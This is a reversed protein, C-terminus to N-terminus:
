QFIVRREDQAACQDYHARRRLDTDLRSSRVSGPPPWVPVQDDAGEEAEAEPNRENSDEGAQRAAVSFRPRRRSGLGSGMARSAVVETAATSARKLNTTLLRAQWVSSRRQEGELWGSRSRIPLGPDAAGKQRHRQRILRKIESAQPVDAWADEHLSLALDTRPAPKKILLSEWGVSRMFCVRSPDAKCRSTSLSRRCTQSPRSCSSRHSWRMDSRSMFGSLAWRSSCTGRTQQKRRIWMSPFCNKWRRRAVFGTEERLERAGAESIGESPDVVGGPLELTFRRVGQRWQRVLVVHDSATVAVVVVYDALMGVLYDDVVRGDAVEIHRPARPFAPRRMLELQTQDWQEATM